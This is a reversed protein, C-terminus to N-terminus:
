KLVRKIENEFDEILLKEGKQINPYFFPIKAPKRSRGDPGVRLPKKGSKELSAGYDENESIAIAEIVTGNVEKYTDVGSMLTGTDVPVDDVIDEVINAARAEIIRDSRKRDFESLAMLKKQLKSM